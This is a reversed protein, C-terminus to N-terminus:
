VKINKARAVQWVWGKKYGREKQIKFLDQITKAKGVEMREERKKNVIDIEVLEGDIEDIERGMKPYEHGCNPCHDAPKHAFHCSSCVMSKVLREAQEGKTIKERGELTWERDDCPFGHEEINNAHDFLKHIEGDYRLFRGWKQMQKTLSLTPQRDIMGQIAVGKIGSASALDYGFTLLDANCLMKIHGKAYDRAIRRREDEPTGGDMHAASIGADRYAQEMMKSNDVSVDFTIFPKNEGHKLYYNVSNGVLYRDSMRSSLKGQNYDGALKGIGSLDIHEPAYPRYTALRKNEILWKVSKGCVMTDFWDGLGRGDNRNPTASLGLIKTGNQKMPKIVGDLGKGGFHVEDIIARQPLIISGMRRQIGQLSVIFVKHWDRCPYGSAIFSHPINFQSFNESMQRILERRPVIFWIVNGASLSRSIIYSAMVSKGSGTASQMLVNKHGKAFENNVSQVLENQDEFLNIM